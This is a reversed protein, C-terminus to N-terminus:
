CIRTCSYPAKQTSPVTWLPPEAGELWGTLDSDGDHENKSHPFQPGSLWCSKQHRGAAFLPKIEPRQEQTIPKTVPIVHHSSLIGFVILHVRTELGNEGTDEGLYRCQGEIIGWKTKRGLVCKGNVLHERDAGVVAFPIRDRIKSNLIKDSIDEDFCKQPYVDICHTKLNHQIRRRFNEREEITLSDARAIVPVVNVTRCLRQLFEIDLPRLSSLWPLSPPSLPLLLHTLSPTGAWLGHRSGRRQRRRSREARAPGVVEGTGLPRCSTYVATCGPTLSTVSAPSSSRKRCTSSMSNM